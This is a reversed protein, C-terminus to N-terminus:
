IYFLHPPPFSRVIMIERESAWSWNKIQKESRWRTGRSSRIHDGDNVILWQVANFHEKLKFNRLSFVSNLTEKWSFLWGHIVFDEFFFDWIEVSLTNTVCILLDAATYSFDLNTLQPHFPLLSFSWTVFLLDGLWSLALALQNWHHPPEFDYDSAKERRRRERIGSERSFSTKYVKKENKKNKNNEPRRMAWISLELYM